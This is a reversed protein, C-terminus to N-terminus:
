HLVELELAEIVAPAAGFMRAMQVGGALSWEPNYRRVKRLEQIAADAEGIRFFFEARALGIPVHPPDLAGAREFAARASANDGRLHRIWGLDAWADAWLARRRLCAALDDEARSLRLERLAPAAGRGLTWNVHARRRYAEALYPHRAIVRGLAALRAHPEEVAIAGALDRTGWARWLALAAFLVMTAAGALRVRRSLPPPATRPASALGLLASFVLANAPMRLNRDLLSHVLLSAVAAAAGVGLSKRFPDRGQTLRDRLGRGVVWALWAALALGITGTEAAFEFADNDAHTTLVLGLASKFRRAADGFTGLGAGGVPEDGFLRLAAHSMVVRYQGAGDSPGHLITSLRARTTEPVVLWGFGVVLVGVLAAAVLPTWGKARAQASWWLLALAGIGGVLALLGGRSGCALHAGVMVLTAGILAVTPSDITKVRRARGLALAASLVIAMELLGAFLNHNAYSGYPSPVLPSVAGYLSHPKWAAQFVGFAAELLGLALVSYALASAAREDSGHSSWFVVVALNSALLLTSELSLVWSSSFSVAQVLGWLVLAAAPGLVASGAEADRWLWFAVVLLLVAALAYRVVDSDGGYWWPVLLLAALQVVRPIM